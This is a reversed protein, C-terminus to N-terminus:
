FAGCKLKSAHSRFAATFIIFSGVLPYNPGLDSWPPKLDVEGKESLAASNRHTLRLGLGSAKVSACTASRALGHGPSFCTDLGAAKDYALLFVPGVSLQPKLVAKLTALGSAYLANGSTM